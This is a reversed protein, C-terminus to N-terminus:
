ALLYADNECEEVTLRDPLLRFGLQRLRSGYKDSAAQIGGEDRSLFLTVIQADEM